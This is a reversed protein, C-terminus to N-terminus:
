AAERKENSRLLEIVEEVYAAANARAHHLGGAEKDTLESLLADHKFMGRFAPRDGLTVNMLAVNNKDLSARIDREDRTMVAGPNTRTLLVKHPISKGAIRETQKIQKLTRIVQLADLTTPAFPVIVLDAQSIVLNMWQNPSGEPDSLVFTAWSEAAELWDLVSEDDNDTTIVVLHQDRAAERLIATATEADRVRHKATDIVPANRGEAWTALPRNPDGEVLAVRAGAAILESTLALAATTKGSGGKTNAFTINPM